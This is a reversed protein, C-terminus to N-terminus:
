RKSNEENLCSKDATDDITDTATHHPLKSEIEM